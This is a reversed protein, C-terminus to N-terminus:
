EVVMGQRAMDHLGDDVNLPKAFRSVKSIDLSSDKPRKAKWCLQDSTIPCVLSEDLDFAKSIKICFDFRNIRESGGTHFVGIQDRISMIMDALNTSLTPSTYQDNVINIRKGKKMEDVAWTVFNPRAPNWGYLVSTRAIAYDKLIEQVFREGALKSEGYYNIPSTADNEKYMGHQGDFVYDTSVYILKANIDRAAFAVNKPGLANIEWAVERNVECQDVNTMAATLIIYNPKISRILNVSKTIDMQYTKCGKIKPPNSNYTLATECSNRSALAVARGLLGSGIVLIETMGIGTND